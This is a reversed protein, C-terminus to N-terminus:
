CDANPDRARWEKCGQMIVQRDTTEWTEKDTDFEERILYEQGNLQEVTIEEQKNDKCAAVSVALLFALAIHSLKM